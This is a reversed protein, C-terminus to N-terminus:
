VWSGLSVFGLALNLDTTNSEIGTKRGDPSAKERDLLMVLARRSDFDLYSKYGIDLTLFCGSNLM